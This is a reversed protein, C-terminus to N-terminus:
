AKAMKVAINQDLRMTNFLTYIDRSVNKITLSGGAKELSNHAAILVGLGVSDVMEVGDLDITLEIIGQEFLALLTKRFDEAMPAIIDKNPKITKKTTKKKAKAMNGGM